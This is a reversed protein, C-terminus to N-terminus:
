LVIMQKVLSASETELKCFYMGPPLGTSSWSKQHIGGPFVGQALTAVERGLVDYVRLTVHQAGPLSFEIATTGTFPNPYNQTLSPAFAHEGDPSENAVNLANDVVAYVGQDGQRQVIEASTNAVDVLVISQGNNSKLETIGDFIVHSSTVTVLDIGNAISVPSFSLNFRTLFSNIFEHEPLGIFPAVHLGGFVYVGGGDNVYRSLVDPDFFGRDTLSVTAFIAHYDQLQEFSFNITDTYDVDFGARQLAVKVSDSYDRLPDAANYEVALIRAGPTSNTLYNALNVAFLTEQAGNAQFQTALTNVDHGVVIKGQASAAPTHGLICVCSTLLSLWLWKHTVLPHHIKM